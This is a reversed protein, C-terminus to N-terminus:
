SKRTTSRSLIAVLHALEEDVQAETSVTEMVIKRITDRYRQRLRHAAVRVAGPTMQLRECVALYDVDPGGANALVPSLAEFLKEKHADRYTRSLEDLARELIGLAWQREFIEEPTGQGSPIRDHLMEAEDADIRIHLVGGGRKLARNKASDNSVYRVLATLLFSRFRGAEPRAVQIFNKEILVLFFGQLLDSADDKSYGRARLFSYLPQWYAQCLSALAEQAGDGASAARHVLSWRTDEFAM